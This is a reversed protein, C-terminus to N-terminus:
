LVDMSHYDQVPVDLIVCIDNVNFETVACWGAVFQELPIVWKGETRLIEAPGSRKSYILGRSTISLPFPPSDRKEGFTKHNVLVVDACAMLENM